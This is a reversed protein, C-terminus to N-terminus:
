KQNTSNVLYKTSAFPCRDQKSAIQSKRKRAMMLGGGTMGGKIRGGCKNRRKITMGGMM